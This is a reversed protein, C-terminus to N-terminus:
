RSSESGPGKEAPAHHCRDGGVSSVKARDTSPLTHAPTGDERAHPSAACHLSTGSPHCTTGRPHHCLLWVEARPPLVAPAPLAPLPPRPTSATPHLVAPIPAPPRVGGDTPVQGRHGPARSRVPTEESHGVQQGRKGGPASSAGAPRTCTRRVCFSSARGSVTLTSNEPKRPNDHPVPPTSCKRPSRHVCLPKAPSGLAHPRQLPRHHTRLGLQGRSGRGARRVRVSPGTLAWPALRALCGFPPSQCRWPRHRAGQRTVGRGRPVCRDEKSLRMWTSPSRSPSTTGGPPKQSTRSSHPPSGHAECGM